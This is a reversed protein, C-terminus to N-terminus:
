RNRRARMLCPKARVAEGGVWNILDCGAGESGCAANRRGRSCGATNAGEVLFGADLRLYEDLDWLYGSGSSDLNALDPLPRQQFCM